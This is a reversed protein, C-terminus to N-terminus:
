TATALRSALAEPLGVSRIKKQASKVDYPVRRLSIKQKKTDLLVFSAATIGDRPQGVSGVNVLYRSETKTTVM